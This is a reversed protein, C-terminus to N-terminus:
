VIMAPHRFATSQALAVRVAAARSLPNIRRETRIGSIVRHLETFIKKSNCAGGNAGLNESSCLFLKGFEGNSSNESQLNENQAGKMVKLFTAIEFGNLNDLFEAALEFVGVEIIHSFIESM